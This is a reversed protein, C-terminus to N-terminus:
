IERIMSVHRDLKGGSSKSIKKKWINIRNLSHESAYTQDTCKQGKAYALRRDREVANQFTSSISLALM